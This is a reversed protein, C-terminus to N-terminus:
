EKERIRVEFSLRGRSRSCVRYERLRGQQREISVYEDYAIFRAIRWVESIFDAGGPGSVIYWDGSRAISWGEGIVEQLEIGLAQSVEDTTM